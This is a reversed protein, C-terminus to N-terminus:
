DWSILDELRPGPWVSGVLKEGRQALDCIAYDIM